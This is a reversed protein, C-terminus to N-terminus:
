FLSFKLKLFIKNTILLFCIGSSYNNTNLVYSDGMNQNFSNSNGDIIQQKVIFTSGCNVCTNTFNVCIITIMSKIEIFKM